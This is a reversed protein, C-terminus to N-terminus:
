CLVIETQQSYAQNPTLGYTFLLYNSYGYKFINETIMNQM